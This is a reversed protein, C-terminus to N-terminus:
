QFINHRVRQSLLEINLGIPETNSEAVKGHLRVWARLVQKRMQLHPAYHNRGWLATM